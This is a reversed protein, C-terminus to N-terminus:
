EDGKVVYEREKREKKIGRREEEYSYVDVYGSESSGYEVKRAM